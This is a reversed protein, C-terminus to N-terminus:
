IFKKRFKLFYQSGISLPAICVAVTILVTLFKVYGVLPSSKDEINLLSDYIFPSYLLLIITITIGIWLGIKATKYNHQM